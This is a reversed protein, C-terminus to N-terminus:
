PAPGSVVRYARLKRNQGDFTLFMEELVAGGVSTISWRAKTEGDESTEEAPEGWKQKAQELTMKGMGEKLLTSMEAFNPGACGTALVALLLPLLYKKM